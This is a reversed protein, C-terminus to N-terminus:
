EACVRISHVPFSYVKYRNLLVSVAAPRLKVLMTPIVPLDEAHEAENRDDRLAAIRSIGDVVGVFLRAISSEISRVQEADLHNALTNMVFSGLDDLFLRADSLKASYAGRVVHTQENAMLQALTSENHPGSVPCLEGLSGLLLVNAPASSCCHEYLLESKCLTVVLEELQAKQEGLLTSLGQLRKVVKSLVSAVSDLGILVVWWVVDPKCAPNKEDLYESIEVRNEELFKTLKSMSAWRTDMFKPCTTKM